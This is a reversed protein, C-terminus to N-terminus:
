KRRSRLESWVAEPSVGADALLVLTHFFLDAVEGALEDTDGTAGALAVEAGEEAVKQAIRKAGSEFLEVTYSGAPRDVQRQRITQFLGVLVGPGVEADERPTDATLPTFFCSEAGTHCAPGEARVQFLLVDGDCDVQASGVNLFAGSTEGKHWQEERSRSYFHMQGSAFTRSLAEANMHAVMLVKGSAADQCIATVLGQGDLKVTPPQATTM